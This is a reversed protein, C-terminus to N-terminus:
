PAVEKLRQADATGAPPPSGRHDGHHDQHRAAVLRRATRVVLLRDLVIAGIILAGVVAQQWFDAIGVTPLARNITTLLVAGLAAGVVTGSGGTIAVGGIVAAAVANLELGAGASSSITAYRAAYLVGALGALAGSAVFAALVRRTVPLGYLVAAQPDSGIAYLERGSRTSHLLYALAALVLVAVLTIFPVGLVTGTGFSVFASPLDSANVRDAGAWAVLVGRFAYLTGLTIVLSPVRAVSVLVGNVLGLLPGLLLALVVVVVAPLSTNAFMWGTAYATLGLVASVSLDINKTVVVLAQGVALLVLLAPTLLLNRFGDAGTAFSPSAVTAVVVVLVVALAVSTERRRGVRGLWGTRQGTRQSTAPSM